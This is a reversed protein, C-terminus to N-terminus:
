RSSRTQVASASGTRTSPRSPRWSRDASVRRRRPRRADAARRRGARPQGNRARARREARRQRAVVLRRGAVSGLPLRPPAGRARGLAVDPVRQEYSGRGMGLVQSWWTGLIRSSVSVQMTTSVRRVSSRVGAAAWFAVVEDVLPQEDTPHFSWCLRERRGDISLHGEAAHAGVVRWFATTSEVFAPVYTGNKATGFSADALEVDLLAAEDLRLAGSRVIDYGRHRGRPHGAEVMAAPIEAAVGALEHRDPRVIVQGATLTDGDVADLMWCRAGAPASSPYRGRDAALGRDTLDEALVRDRARTVFPHDATCRVRRGM